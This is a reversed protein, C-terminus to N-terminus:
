EDATSPEDSSKMQLCIDFLVGVARWSKDAVLTQVRKEFGTDWPATEMVITKLTNKVDTVLVATNAVAPFYPSFLGILDDLVDKTAENNLLMKCQVNPPKTVFAKAVRADLKAVLRDRNEGSTLSDFVAKAANTLNQELSDFFSRVVATLPFFESATEALERLEKIHASNFKHAMYYEATKIKNYDYNDGRYFVFGEYDFDDKVPMFENAPPYRKLFENHSIKQRICDSLGNFMAEIELAHNVNWWLPEEFGVAHARQSHLFHPEYIVGESSCHSVGLFRFLSQQYSVALETHLNGWATMRRKCVAEFSFTHNEGAMGHVMESVRVVFEMGFEEMARAPTNSPVKAFEVLADYSVIDLGDLISTTMYDQMAEGLFFTAQSSIIIVCDLGADRCLKLIAKAYADGYSEIWSAMMTAMPGFCVLLSCLSGDVKTSLKGEVEVRNMLRNMTDQQIDAFNSLRSDTYDQTETVGAKKLQGTLIEAGRQLLFKLIIWVGDDTLYLVVGRCQRAWIPRWLFNIGDIYKICITRRELPTGKFCFPTKAHFKQAVFWRCVEEYNMSKWLNNMLECIDMQDTSKMNTTVNDNGKFLLTLLNLLSSKGIVFEENWGLALVFDPRYPAHTMRIEQATSISSCSRHDIGPPIPHLVGRPGHTIIQERLSAFHKLGNDTFVANRQIDLAIIIAVSINAPFIQACQKFYNMVTDVIVFERAEIGEGILRKMEANVRPAYETKKQSYLAYCRRYFEGSPDSDTPLTEEMVKAMVTCIVMDRNVVRYPIGMKNMWEILMKVAESKGAGSMGRVLVVGADNKHSAREFSDRDFKTSIASAFLKRSEVFIRDDGKVSPHRIGAFHDALSMIELENRVEPSELRLLNWKYRANIDEPNTCHYGCMHVGICRVITEWQKETFFKEFGANFIQSFIMAGVEGHFPYSTVHKVADGRGISLLKMCAPKGIDHNLMIFGTMVAGREDGNLVRQIIAIMMALQSHVSLPEMHYDCMHKGERHYHKQAILEHVQNLTWYEMVQTGANSLALFNFVISQIKGIEIAVDACTRRQEDSIKSLNLAYETEQDILLCIKALVKTAAEYDAAMCMDWFIKVLHSLENVIDAKDAMMTAINRLTICRFDKKLLLDCLM